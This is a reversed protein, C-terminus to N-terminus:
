RDLRKWFAKYIFSLIKGVGYTGLTVRYLAYVMRLLEQQKWMVLLWGAFSAVYRLLWKM